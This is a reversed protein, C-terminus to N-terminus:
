RVLLPVQVVDTESGDRPNTWYVELTVPGSVSAPLQVAFDYTGWVNSSGRSATTVGSAVIRRSLDLVRWATTAEFTRSVGSVTFRRDVTDGRSPTYVAVTGYILPQAGGIDLFIDNGTMVVRWPRLDDIGLEYTAIGGNAGVRVSRLPSRDVIELGPKGDVGRVDLELVYKGFWPAKLEDNQRVNVDVTGSIQGSAIHVAYRVVGAGVDSYSSSLRATAPSPCPTPGCEAPWSEAILQPSVRTYISVDERSLASSLSLSGIRLPRGGNQTVIAYRIGAEETATYVIQQRLAVADTFVLPWDGTGTPVGLDITVTDGSIKVDTIATVMGVPVTTFAGAPPPVKNEILLAAMRRAVRKTADAEPRSVDAIHVSTPPLDHRAFYIRDRDITPVAATPAPSPTPGPTSAAPATSPQEAVPASAPMALVMSAAVAVLALSAALTAIGWAPAVRRPPRAIRSQEYPTEEADLTEIARALARGIIEDDRPEDTKM